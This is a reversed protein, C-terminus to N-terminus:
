VWGPDSNYLKIADVYFSTQELYGSNAWGMLYGANWYPKATDYKQPVNTFNLVKTNNFWLEMLANDADTATVMKYHMRVRTWQGQMSDGGYPAHGSRFGPPGFGNLGDAWAKYNYEFGIGSNGESFSATYISSMGVKNASSYADGWMRFFKNNIGGSTQTRHIFNEPIRLYYEIWIETLNRGLTFRQEASSDGLDADPGYIFKLSHSGSYAYDSSVVVRNPNNPTSWTFGNNNNKQGNIFYEEFFPTAPPTSSTGGDVTVTPKSNLTVGYVSVSIQKSSSVETTVFSGTTIGSANTKETPQTITNNIGSVSIVIDSANINELPIYEGDETKVVQITIKNVDTGTSLMNTKEVSVFSDILINGPSPIDRAIVKNKAGPRFIGSKGVGDRKIIFTNTM